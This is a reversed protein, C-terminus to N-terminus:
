GFLVFASAIAGIWSVSSLAGGFLLRAKQMQALERFPTKTAVDLAMGLNIANLVLLMVFGLKLKFLPLAWLAAFAPYAMWAGTVIMGILGAGVTYHLRRM